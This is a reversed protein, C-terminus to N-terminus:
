FDVVSVLIDTGTEASVETGDASDSLQISGGCLRDFLHNEYIKPKPTQSLIIFLISSLKLKNFVHIFSHFQFSALVFCPYNFSNLYAYM